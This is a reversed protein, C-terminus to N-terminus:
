VDRTTWRALAKGLHYPWFLTKWFGWQPPSGWIGGLIILLAIWDAM